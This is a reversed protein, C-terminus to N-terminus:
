RASNGYKQTLAITRCILRAAFFESVVQGPVPILEVVDMGLLRTSQCLKVLLAELTPWDLGGPEPTGVGPVVAPDMADLDITLYVNPGLKDLVEGLWPGQWLPGSDSSTRIQEMTLTCVSNRRVYRSEEQSINRIGVSVSSFGLGHARRMVCAHSYKSSQWSDRMDMHADIHLISMNRSRGACARIAGLSISHDGGLTILFKGDRIIKRAALYVQQQMHEPGAASPEVADCTAIGALHLEKGLDPDYWEVQGSAAIIAAPGDRSGSRYSSAADYPVPLVAYRASRYDSHPPQLAMFNFPVTEM